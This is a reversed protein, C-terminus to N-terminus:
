TKSLTANVTKKRKFCEFDEENIKEIITKVPENITEKIKKKLKSLTEPKHQKVFMSIQVSKNYGKRLNANTFNIDLIIKKDFIDQHNFIYGRLVRQTLRTIRSIQKSYEEKSRENNPIVFMSLNIEVVNPNNRHNAM